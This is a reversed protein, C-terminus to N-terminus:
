KEHYYLYKNAKFSTFVELKNHLILSALWSWFVSPALSQGATILRKLWAIWNGSTSGDVWWLILPASGDIVLNWTRGDTPRGKTAVTNSYSRKKKRGKM